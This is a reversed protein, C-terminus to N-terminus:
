PADVMVPVGRNPPATNKECCDSTSQARLIPPVYVNEPVVVEGVVMMELPVEVAVM